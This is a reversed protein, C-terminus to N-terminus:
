FSLCFNGLCITYIDRVRFEVFVKLTKLMLFLVATGLSSTGSNEPELGRAKESNGNEEGKRDKM